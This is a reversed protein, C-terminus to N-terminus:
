HQKFDNKFYNVFMLKKGIGGGRWSSDGYRVQLLALQVEEGLNHTIEHFYAPGEFILQM